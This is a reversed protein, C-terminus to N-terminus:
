EEDRVSRLIERQWTAQHIPWGQVTWGDRRVTEAAGTLRVRQQCDREAPLLQRGLRWANSRRRTIRDNDIITIACPEPLDLLRWAIVEHSATRFGRKLQILDFGCARAANALWTTPVLLRHAFLNALSEGAWPHTAEPPVGLRGLLDSKLHEGIEHAVTWQHREETPEPRLFIHPKGGARQARGRQPQQRDLCIVMGLHGQALRIADVPPETVGAAALLEAIARDVIELAEDRPLEDFM